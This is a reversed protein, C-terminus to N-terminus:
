RNLVTFAAPPEIGNDALAELLQIVRVAMERPEAKGTAWRSIVRPDTGILEAAKAQTPFKKIANIVYEKKPNRHSINM